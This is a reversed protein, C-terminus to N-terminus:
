RGLFDGDDDYKTNKTRDKLPFIGQWNNLISQNLIEIQENPNETMGSLKHLLLEKSKNTMPKKIAKRMKEFDYLTTKLRKDEIQSFVDEPSIPPINKSKSKSKVRPINEHNIGMDSDSHSDMDSDLYSDSYSDSYNDYLPIISYSGATGKNGKKYRILGKQILLNRNKALESSSIQCMGIITSNPINFESKWGCSNGCNLIAFYLDTQAHNIENLRRWNWFGNIQSIYRM